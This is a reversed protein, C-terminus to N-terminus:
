EEDYLKFKAVDMGFSLDKQEAMQELEALTKKGFNRFKMLDPVEMAMLEGLITIGGSKLCNSARVSLSPQLDGIPTKLLKRVRLYEEDISEEIEEIEKPLLIKRDTFLMFHSILLESAQKLAEEPLLSGDTQIELLLKEYDTRQEVRTNEIYYKVNRIPTFISDIPMLGIIEEPPKNEDALRYGRGKDLTIRMKLEVSPDLECIIVEPNLIKFNNTFHHIDGGKFVKKGKIAIDVESRSSQRTLQKFRIKKLNLIINPVDQVVGEITSFEHLVGEILVSTIACGELSSLLVRRMANGITMGYGQELPGFEFTAQFDNGEQLFVKEPRQFSIISM